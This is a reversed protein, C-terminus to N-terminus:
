AATQLKTFASKAANYQARTKIDPSDQGEEYLDIEHRVVYLWDAVSADDNGNDSPASHICKPIGYTKRISTEPFATLANQGAKLVALKMKAQEVDKLQARHTRAWFVTKHKACMGATYALLEMQGDLHEQAIEIDIKAPIDAATTREAARKCDGLTAFDNWWERRGNIIEYLNWDPRMSTSDGNERKCRAIDEAEFSRNNISFRYLGINIRTSKINSM